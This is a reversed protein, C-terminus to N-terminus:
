ADQQRFPATRIVFAPDLDSMFQSPSALAYGALAKGDTGMHSLAAKKKEDTDAKQSGVLYQSPAIAVGVNTVLKYIQPIKTVAAAYKATTGNEVSTGTIETMASEDSFIDEWKDTTNKYYYAQAKVENHAAVQVSCTDATFPGGTFIHSDIFEEDYEDLREASSNFVIAFEGAGGIGLYEDDFLAAGETFVFRNFPHSADRGKAIDNVKKGSSGDPTYTISKISYIIYGNSAMYVGYLPKRQWIAYLDLDSNLIQGETIEDGSGDAATNWEVFDYGVRSPDALVAIEGVDDLDEPMTGATVPAAARDNAHFTVDFAVYLWQAYLTVDTCASYTDGPDYSTGSGDAATNWGLFSYSVRRMSGADAITTTVGIPKVDLAPANLGKNADYTVTYTTVDYVPYLYYTTDKECDFWEQIIATNAANSALTATYVIEGNPEIAWGLFTKGAVTPDAPKTLAANTGFTRSIASNYNEYGTQSSNLQLFQIYFPNATMTVTLTTGSTSGAGYIDVRHASTYVNTDNINAATEGPTNTSYVAHNTAVKSIHYGKVPTFIFSTPTQMQTRPINYVSGSSIDYDVGPMAITGTAADYLKVTLSNSDAASGDAYVAYLKFRYNTDTSLHRFYKWADDFTKIYPEIYNHINGKTNASNLALPIEPVTEDPKTAWGILTKGTITPFENSGADTAITASNYTKIVRWLMETGASNYYEIYYQNAYAVSQFTVAASVGYEATYTFGNEIDDSICTAAANAGAVYTNKAIISGDENYVAAGTPALGSIHYGMQPRYTLSFSNGYGAPYSFSAGPDFTVGTTTYETMKVTVDTAEVFVPYLKLHGGHRISVGNSVAINEVGGTFATYSVTGNTIGTVLATSANPEFAFGALKYGPKIPLGNTFTYAAPNTGFTKPISYKVTTNDTDYIDISYEDVVAKATLAVYGSSTKIGYELTLTTEMDNSPNVQQVMVEGAAWTTSATKWVFTRTCTISDNEFHYGPNATFKIQSRYDTSGATGNGPLLTGNVFDSACNTRTITLAMTGYCPYLDITCGQTIETLEILRTELDASNAATMTTTVFTNIVSQGNRTLAWGGTPAVDTVTVTSSIRTGVTKSVPTNASGDENHFRLNYTDPVADVKIYGDKAKIGYPVTVTLTKGDASVTQPLTDGKAYYTASSLLSENSYFISATNAIACTNTFHYGNNAHFTFTKSLGSRGGRSSGLITDGSTFGETTNTCNTLTLNLAYPLAPVVTIYAHSNTKAGWVYIT